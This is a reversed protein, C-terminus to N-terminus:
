KYVDSDSNLFFIFCRHNSSSSSFHPSSLSNIDSNSPPSDIFHSSILHSPSLLSSPTSFTSRLQLYFTPFLTFYLIQVPSISPFTTLPVFLSSLTATLRSSFDLDGLASGLQALPSCVEEPRKQKKEQFISCCLQNTTQM